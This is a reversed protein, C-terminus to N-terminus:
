KEESETQKGTRAMIEVKRLWLEATQIKGPIKTIETEGTDTAEQLERKADAVYIAAEQAIEKPLTGSKDTQLKEAYADLHAAAAEAEAASLHQSSRLNPSTDRLNNFYAKAQSAAQDISLEAWQEQTPTAAAPYAAEPLPPLDTPYNNDYKAVFLEAHEYTPAPTPAPTPRIELGEAMKFAPTEAAVPTEAPAAPMPTATPKPAPTEAAPKADPTHTAEIPKPKDCATIIFAAGACIAALSTHRM